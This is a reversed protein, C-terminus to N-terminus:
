YVIIAKIVRGYSVRIVIVAVITAHIVRGYSVTLSGIPEM